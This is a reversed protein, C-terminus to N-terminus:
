CSPRFKVPMKRFPSPIVSSCIAAPSSANDYFRQVLNRRARGLFLDACEHLFDPGHPWRISRLRSENARLHGNEESAAQDSPRRRRHCFHSSLQAPTVSGLSRGSYIGREAHKLAQRGVDTALIEVNWADSFSLADAITIAISYPEEGHLLRRELRAANQSEEL